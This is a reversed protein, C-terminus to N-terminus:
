LRGVTATLPVLTPKKKTKILKEEEGNQVVIYNLLKVLVVEVKHRLKIDQRADEGDKLQQQL